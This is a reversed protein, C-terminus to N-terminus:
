KLKRLHKEIFEIAVSAGQAVIGEAYGFENVKILFEKQEDSVNPKSESLKGNLLRKRAKKMEIFLIKNPLLVIYDSVGATVGERKLNIAELKHRSGGNPVAFSILKKLKCYQHLKIQEQRETM